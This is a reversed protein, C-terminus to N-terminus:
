RGYEPHGRNAEPRMTVVTRRDPHLAQSRLGLRADGGREDRVVLRFVTVAGYSCPVVIDIKTHPELTGLSVERAGARVGAEIPEGYASEIRVDCMALGDGLGSRLDGPDGPRAGPACAAAVTPLLAVFLLRLIIAQDM